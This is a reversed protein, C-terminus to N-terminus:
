TWEMMEEEGEVWDIKANPKDLRTKKKPPYKKEMKKKIGYGYKNFRDFGNMWLPLKRPAKGQNIQEQYFHKACYKKCKIWSTARERCGKTACKIPPQKLKAKMTKKKLM